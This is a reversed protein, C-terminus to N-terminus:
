QRAPVRPLLTTPEMESSAAGERARRDEEVDQKTTSARGAGSMSEGKGRAGSM